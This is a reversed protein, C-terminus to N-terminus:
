PFLGPPVLLPNLPQGPRRLRTEPLVVQETTVIAPEDPGLSATFAALNEGGHVRVRSWQYRDADSHVTGPETTTATDYGAERVVQVVRPSYRGAPYCFDLVPHGLLEELNRKSGAVEEELRDGSLTTLDLHRITHSAIEIGNHEMELAQERTFRGSGGLFGAIVYAVAKFGLGRLTPYAETYFDAYSDDFTLILPRAPLASTGSFYDRLDNFDIPNYGNRDLWEMQNRFDAPDVSLDTLLPDRPNHYARIYHYMLIPVRVPNRGRPIVSHSTAPQPTAEPVAAPASATVSAPAIAPAAEDVPTSVRNSAALSDGSGILVVAAVLAIRSAAGVREVFGHVLDIM